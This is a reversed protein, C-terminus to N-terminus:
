TFQTAAVGELVTLEGILLQRVEDELQMIVGMDYPGACLTAMQAATFTFEIEGALPDAITVTDDATGASLRLCKDKDRIEVIVEANTLDIPEGTEEDALVLIVEFDARNSLPPLISGVLM